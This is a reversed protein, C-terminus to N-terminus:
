EALITYVGAKFEEPIQWIVSFTYENTPSITLEEIITASKIQLTVQAYSSLGYGSLTVYDGQHYSGEKDLELIIGTTIEKVDFNIESINAGSSVQITWEGSQKGHPINLSYKFKGDGDSHYEIKDIKKGTPDILEILILM